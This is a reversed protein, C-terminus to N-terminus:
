EKQEQVIIKRWVVTESSYKKQASIKIMNIGPSLEIIEEFFGDVIKSVPQDNIKVVAGKETRGILNITREQIILNNEPQTITLKPPFIAIKILFLFYGVILGVIFFVLIKRLNITRPIKRFGPLMRQSIGKKKSIVKEREEFFKSEQRYRNIVRPVDLNLFQAYHELFGRAYTPSPLRHYANEELAKLYKASIGIRKEIDTLEWGRALRAKALFDGLTESQIKRVTFAMIFVFGM